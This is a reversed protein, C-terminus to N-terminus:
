AYGGFAEPEVWLLRHVLGAAGEARYRGYRRGCQRYSIGLVEAAEVLNMERREVRELTVLSEREKKSMRYTGREEM